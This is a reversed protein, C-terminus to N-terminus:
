STPTSWQFHDLVVTPSALWVRPQEVYYRLAQQLAGARFAQGSVWPHLHLTLTRGGEAHLVDFAHMLSAAWDDPSVGRIFMSALDSLEWSMPFSWFDPGAGPCPYPLEDNGWDAVYRLGAEALLRLTRHSESHEPGVWGVPPTPLTAALRTMTQDIYDREEDKDMLSTIPRSASLGGALFESAVPTIHGMLSPYSECTLVDVVFTPKIDLEDLIDVLRFVGVRHGFERQSMRPVDPPVGIGRGGPPQPRVATADEWEVAGLHIVVSLALHAGGPWVV